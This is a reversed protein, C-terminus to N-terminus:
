MASFHRHLDAIVIRRDASCGDLNTAPQGLLRREAADAFWRYQWLAARQCQLYRLVTNGRRARADKSDRKPKMPPLIGHSFIIKNGFNSRHM